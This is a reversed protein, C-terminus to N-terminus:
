DLQAAHGAPLYQVPPELTVLQAAPVYRLAVPPLAAASQLAHLASVPTDTDPPVYVDAAPDVAFVAHLYVAGFLVMVPQPVTVVLWTVYLPVAHGAVVYLTVAFPPYTIAFLLVALAVQLAHPSPVYLAPPLAVDHLAHLAKVPTDTDPPVYVDTDGRL